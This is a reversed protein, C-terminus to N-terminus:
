AVDTKDITGMSANYGIVSAPKYVKNKTYDIKGTDCMTDFYTTLMGEIM